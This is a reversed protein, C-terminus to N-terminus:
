GNRREEMTSFWDYLGAGWDRVLIGNPVTPQLWNHEPRKAPTPVLNATKEGIVRTRPVGLLSAVELAVHHRSVPGGFSVGHAVGRERNKLYGCIMTALDVSFTPVGWQDVPVTVTGGSRLRDYVSRVFSTGTTGYLGQTRVILHQHLPLIASVVTEGRLKSEGYFNIPSPSDKTSYGGPKEGPFVFDTSIHVLLSGQESCISALNNLASGNLELAKRRQTEAGDVDTFAAANVWVHSPYKASFKQVSRWKTIDVKHHPALIVDYGYDQFVRSADRGFRGGSGFLLLRKSM